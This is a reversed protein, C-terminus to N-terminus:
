ASYYQITFVTDPSHSLNFYEHPQTLWSMAPYVLLILWLMTTRKSLIYIVAIVNECEHVCVCVCVCVCM